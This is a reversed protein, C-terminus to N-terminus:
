VNQFLFTVLIKPPPSQPLCSKATWSLYLSTAPAFIGDKARWQPQMSITAASDWIWDATTLEGPSALGLQVHRSPGFGFFQNSPISSGTSSTSSSSDHSSIGFSPFGHGHQQTAQSIYAQAEGIVKYAQQLRAPCSSSYHGPKNCHYCLDHPHSTHTLPQTANSTSVTNTTGVPPGLVHSSNSTTHAYRCNQRSCKGAKFNRCEEKKSSVNSKNDGRKGDHSFRCKKGRKCIGKAWNRCKPATSSTSSSTGSSFLATQENLKLETEKLRIQMALFDMTMRPNNPDDISKQMTFADVLPKFSTSLGNTFISMKSDESIRDGVPQSRNFDLIMSELESRYKAVTLTGQKFNEIAHRQLRRGAFTHDQVSAELAQFKARTNPADHVDPINIILHLKDDPIASTLMDDAEALLAKDEASSQATATGAASKYIEDMGFRKAYSIFRHEWVSFTTNSSFVTLDSRRWNPRAIHQPAQQDAQDM